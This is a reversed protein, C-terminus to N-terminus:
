AIGDVRLYAAMVRRYEPLACELCVTHNTWRREGCDSCVDFTEFAICEGDVNTIRPDTKPQCRERCEENCYSENDGEDRLRAPGDGCWACTM